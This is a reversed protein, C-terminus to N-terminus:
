PQMTNARHFRRIGVQAFVIDPLEVTTKLDCCCLTAVRKQRWRPAVQLADERQLKLARHVAVVRHAKLVQTQLDLPHAPAAGQRTARHCHMLVEVALEAQAVSWVSQAAVGGLAFRNCRRRRSPSHFLRRSRRRPFVSRTEWKGGTEVAVPM